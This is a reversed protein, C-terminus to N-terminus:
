CGRKQCSPLNMDAVSAAPPPPMSVCAARSSFTETLELKKSPPRRSSFADGIGVNGTDGQIFFKGVASYDNRGVNGYTASGRSQLSPDLSPEDLKPSGVSSPPGDSSPSPASQVSQPARTHSNDAGSVTGASTMSGRGLPKIKAPRSGTQSSAGPLSAAVVVIIAFASLLLMRTSRRMAKAPRLLM